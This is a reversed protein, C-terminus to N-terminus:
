PHPFRLSATHEAEHPVAAWEFLHAATGMCVRAAGGASTHVRALNLM